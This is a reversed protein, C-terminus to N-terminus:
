RVTLLHNRYQVPTMKKLNWQQRENNYYKMYDEILSLLEEFTKCSKYDVEDKLHGFFSEIPANDICNGKRSMSQTMNLKKIEQIYLPNTYHFGQDSHIMAQNFNKTTLIPNNKLKEVTKLVLSMELHRELNWAVIEGTAVDKVVSLYAFRHNLPIYTIDTSFIRLPITQLFIRNLKNDFTRHELSKKMIMKYPNRRRIKTILNYKRMIRIIKKKNMVVGKGLLRMKITRFGYKAKGRDFIEKILLYDDHDKEPEDSHKLWKYYGSTSIKAILCLTEVKLSIQKIIKYKQKPRLKV